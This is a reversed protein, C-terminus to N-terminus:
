GTLPCGSSLATVCSGLSLGVQVPEVDSQWALCCTLSFLEFTLWSFCGCFLAAHFVPFYESHLLNLAKWTHNPTATGTVSAKLEM